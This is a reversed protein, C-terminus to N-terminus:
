LDNNRFRYGLYKQFTKMAFDATRFCPLGKQHLADALADYLQGGDVSTVVPKNHKEIIAPILNHLAGPNDISDWGTKDNGPPLTMMAPTLPVIGMIVAKISPDSLLADLCEAYVKDPAMPTVDLPNLINVLAEINTDALVKRIRARTESALKPLSFGQEEQLTDAMGVTEFGANSIVGLGLGTFERGHLLSAVALTAKLERFSYAIYAGADRLVETCALYDSSISATHSTTAVRGQTTRGAKYVLVVKGLERAKRVLRALRLGDLQNFGEIYLALVDVGDDRIIVETFDTLTLDMQNGTSIAYSPELFPLGNMRTIMFAGSQCILASNRITGATRPLKSEPIFLTDYRGRKSLIGLCNPGVLVPAWSGAARAQAVMQRVAEEEAKGDETEGMGGAIIVLGTACRTKFVERVVGAVQHAGVALVLLDAIWPLESLSPVCAVGDIEDLGSRVVRLQESPFQERILNRLVVRGVNISSASVGILAANRPELLFELKQIDATDEQALDKSFRCFADVATLKGAGAFFPNVEFEQITIGTKPTNSFEKIIWDFFTLVELIKEASVFVRAERTKGTARRFAFSRSFKVLGQQPTMLEPSYLVTAEGVSFKHAIEETDLGGFGITVIHGMDPTWRLGALLQGGLGQEGAIFEVVLIGRITKALESGGLQRVAALIAHAAELIVDAKNEVIRVGSVETKHTIAPSVVKLVVREGHITQIQAALDGRAPNLLYRAPVDLGHQELLDYLEPELLTNRGELLANRCCELFSNM